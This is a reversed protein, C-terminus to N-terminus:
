CSQTKAGLRQCAAQHTCSASSHISSPWWIVESSIECIIAAISLVPDFV